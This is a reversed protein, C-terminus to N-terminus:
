YQFNFNGLARGAGMLIWDASSGALGHQILVPRKANKFNREGNIRGYPLRHIELIYGDETVINHIEVQYGHSKILEPQEIFFIVYNISM